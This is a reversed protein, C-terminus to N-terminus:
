AVPKYNVLGTSAQEFSGVHRVPVGLSVSLVYYICLGPVRHRKYLRV